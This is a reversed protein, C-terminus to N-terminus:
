NLFKLFVFLALEAPQLLERFFICSLHELRKIHKAQLQDNFIYCCLSLSRELLVDDPKALNQVAELIMSIM